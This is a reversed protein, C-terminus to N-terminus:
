SQYEAYGVENGNSDHLVMARMGENTVGHHIKRLIDTLENPNDEFAANDCDIRVNFTM